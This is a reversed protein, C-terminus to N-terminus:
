GAAFAPEPESADRGVLMRAATLLAQAKSDTIRERIAAVIELSNTLDLCLDCVTSYSSREQYLDRAESQKLLLYLGYPGLLSIVELVPDQVARELIQELPEEEANGLVLPSHSTSFYSPGCCAYVRGDHDVLASLVSACAGKIPSSEDIFHEHPLTVARGLRALHSTEFQVPVDAFAARYDSSTGNAPRVTRVTVRIGADVAVRALLVARERLSFEEHYVDWSIAMRELGADALEAMRRRAVSETRVWGAGTVLSVHLGLDRAYATLRTVERHYLLAEGGTFCTRDTYPLMASLYAKARDFDM